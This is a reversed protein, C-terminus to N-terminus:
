QSNRPQSPQRSITELDTVLHALYKRFKVPDSFDFRRPRLPKLVNDIEDFRAGRIPVVRLYYCQAGSAHSTEVTVLHAGNPFLFADSVVILVHLPSEISSRCPSPADFLGELHHALFSPLQKQEALVGVDIKSRNQVELEHTIQRWDLHGADEHDAFIKERRIDLASVRVCGGNLKLQSVVNAIQLIYGANLQYRWEPAEGRRTNTTESLSINAVIDVVLPRTNKVPLDLEGSGFSFPDIIVPTGYGRNIQLLHEPRLFEVEPLNHDIEPLPDDRLPPVSLDTRWLNGRRNVGDFAVVAIRYTGPRVYMSHLSHVTDSPQLDQPPEFIRLSAEHIWRGDRGAVLVAFYLNQSSLGANVLDRVLFSIHVQVAQRQQFTLWAKGVNVHWSFDQRDPGQLWSELPISPGPAENAVGSSASSSIVASLIVIAAGVRFM